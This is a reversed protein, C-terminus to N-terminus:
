PTTIENPQTRSPWQHSDVADLAILDIAIPGVPIALWVRLGEGEVHELLKSRESMKAIDVTDELRSAPRDATALASGPGM